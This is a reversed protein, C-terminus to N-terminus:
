IHKWVSTSLNLKVLLRPHYTISLHLQTGQLKFLEKWFNNTFTPDRYFFISHPSHPQLTGPSKVIEGKNQQCVDCEAV